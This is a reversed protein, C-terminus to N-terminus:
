KLFGSATLTKKANAEFDKAGIGDLGKLYETWSATDIPKQGLAGKVLYESYYRYFDAANSPPNIAGAGTADVWPEKGFAELYALPDQM